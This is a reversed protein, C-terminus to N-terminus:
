DDKTREIVIKEYTKRDKVYQLSDGNRQVAALCVKETQDKVYRLSYGNRQVAALCVKEDTWKDYEAMLKERENQEIVKIVEYKVGKHEIIKKEM